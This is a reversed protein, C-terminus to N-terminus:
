GLEAVEHPLAKLANHSLDLRKLLPWSLLVSKSIAQPQRRV